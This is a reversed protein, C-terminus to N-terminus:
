AAAVPNLAIKIQSLDIKTKTEQLIKQIDGGTTKGMVSISSITAIPIQQPANQAAPQSGKPATPKPTRNFVKKTLTCSTDSTQMTGNAVVVDSDNKCVIKLAFTDRSSAPILQIKSISISKDASEFAPKVYIIESKILVEGKGYSPKLRPKLVSPASIINYHAITLISVFHLFKKM